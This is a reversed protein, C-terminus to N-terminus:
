ILNNGSIYSRNHVEATSGNDYKVRYMETLINCKSGELTSSSYLEQRSLTLFPATSPSGPARKYCVYACVRGEWIPCYIEPSIGTSATGVPM